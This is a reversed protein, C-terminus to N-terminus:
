SFASLWAVKVARGWFWTTTVLIRSVNGGFGFNRHVKM